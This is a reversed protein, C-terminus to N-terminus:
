EYLYNTDDLRIRKYGLSDLLQDIRKLNRETHIEIVLKPHHRDLLEIAGRIVEVEAGEVDIKILEISEGSTAQHVINDLTDVEVLIGAGQVKLSHEGSGKSALALPMTGRGKWVAKNIATVTQLGNLAINRILMNYNTPEPEIAIVRTGRLGNLVTYKGVHAGVDVFTGKSTLLCPLLLREYQETVIHVTLINHGCYFVGLKNKLTVNGPIRNHRAEVERFTQGKLLAKTFLLPWKSFYLWLLVRSRFDRGQRVIALAEQFYRFAVEIKM